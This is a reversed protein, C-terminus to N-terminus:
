KIMYSYRDSKKILKWGTKLEKPDLENSEILQYFEDINMRVCNNDMPSLSIWALAAPEDEGLKQQRLSIMLKGPISPHSLVHGMRAMKIATELTM